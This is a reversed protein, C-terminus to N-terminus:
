NTVGIDDNYMIHLLQICIEYHGQTHIHQRNMTEGGGSGAPYILAAIQSQYKCVSFMMGHFPVMLDKVDM